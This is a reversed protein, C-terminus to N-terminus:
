WDDKKVAKSTTAAKKLQPILAQIYADLQKLYEEYNKNYSPLSTDYWREAPFASLQQWNIDTIEYKFRGERATVTITYQVVGADTKVGSKPDIPNSIRFRPKGVIKRGAEDKERIVETPNKYYQNFWDLIRRYLTDASVGKAEVVGEYTIKKTISDIPLQPATGAEKKQAYVASFSLVLAFVLIKRMTIFKPQRFPLYLVM